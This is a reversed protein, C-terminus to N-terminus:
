LPAKVPSPLPLDCRQGQCRTVLPPSLSCRRRGVWVWSRVDTGSRRSEELLHAIRVKQLFSVERLLGGQLPNQLLSRQRPPWMCATFVHAGFLAWVRAHVQPSSGAAPRGRKEILADTAGLM